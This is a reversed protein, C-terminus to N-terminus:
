VIQFFSLIMYLGLVTLLAGVPLRWMVWKREDLLQSEEQDAIFFMEENVSDEERVKRVVGAVDDRDVEQVTGYVYVDAGVPIFKEYYKRDGESLNGMDLMGPTDPADVVGESIADQVADPATEDVDVRLEATNEEMDFDAESPVIYIEGTGDDLLFAVRDEGSEITEWEPDDHESAASGSDWEEVRWDNVVAETDTFPTMVVGDEESPVVEGKLESPGMSVSQAKETPTDKILMRHKRLKFGKFIYGIGFLLLVGGFLLLLFSNEM